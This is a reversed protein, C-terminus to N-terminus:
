EGQAEPRLLRIRSEAEIVPLKKVWERYKSESFKAAAQRILGDLAHKPWDGIQKYPWKQDGLGYPALFDLAKRVSRGDATEFHWLDSGVNEGLRALLMLGSLNAVSYSWARTRVLELPQKGDPEIQVSLRKQPAEKIVRAAVETKGLFLAYSVVQVDYYTGHNNKAAGEAQGHKSELMWNLFQTFWTELQKQDASSWAKSGALLGVADVVRTLSRSEILGTGRGSNVGPVAQAFQLNPNMRTAADFFWTRLLVAARSAYADKGTFYYALALTEVNNAMEDMERHDSIRRLEPNREGDRRIYPLGNTSAPDPWFYPAQSMYDHKDGSPPTPKKNVVSFPGAQLAEAADKELRALAPALEKDGKRIRGRLSELFKGDLLFVRPPSAPTIDRTQQSFGVCTLLFLVAFIGAPLRLRLDKKRGLRLKSM